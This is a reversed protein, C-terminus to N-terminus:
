ESCLNAISIIDSNSSSVLKLTIKKTIKAVEITKKKAILTVDYCDGPTCGAPVTIKMYVRISGQIGLDVKTPIPTVEIKCDDDKPNIDACFTLSARCVFDDNRVLFVVKETTCSPTELCVDGKQM